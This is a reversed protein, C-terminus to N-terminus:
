YDYAGGKKNKGISKNSCHEFRKFAVFNGSKKVQLKVGVVNALRKVLVIDDAAL